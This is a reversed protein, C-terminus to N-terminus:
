GRMISESGADFDGTVSTDINAKGAEIDSTSYGFCYKLEDLLNEPCNDLTIGFDRCRKLVEASFYFNKLKFAFTHGDRGFVIREIGEIEWYTSSLVEFGNHKLLDILDQQKLGPLTM